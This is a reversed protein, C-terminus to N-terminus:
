HRELIIKVRHMKYIKQVQLKLRPYLIRQEDEVVKTLGHGINLAMKGLENESDLWWFNPAASMASNCGYWPTSGYIMVRSPSLWSISKKLTNRSIIKWALKIRAKLEVLVEWKLKGRVDKSGLPVKSVDIFVALPTSGELKVARGASDLTWSHSLTVLVWVKFFYDINSQDLFPKCINM